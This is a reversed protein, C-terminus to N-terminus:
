DCPIDEVERLMKMYQKESILIKHGQKTIDGQEELEKIARQVTKLSLGTEDAISQRTVSLIYNQDKDTKKYKRIMYLRIREVGQLQLTWRDRHGRQLVSSLDDTMRRVYVEMHNRMFNMYDAKPIVLFICDSKAILSAIYCGMNAFSEMEGFITPATNEQFVYANGIKYEELVSVTGSALIYISNLAEQQTVFKKGREMEQLHAKELLYKAESGFVQEMLMLIKKQKHESILKYGEKTQNYHIEKRKSKMIDSLWKGLLTM